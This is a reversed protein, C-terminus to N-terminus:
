KGVAVREIGGCLVELFLKDVLLLIVCVLGCDHAECREAREECCCCGGHGEGDGFGEVDRDWAHVEDAALGAVVVWTEEGDEGGSGAGCCSTCCAVFAAFLAGFEAFLDRPCGGEKSSM